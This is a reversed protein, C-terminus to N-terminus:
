TQSFLVTFSPLRSCLRVYKSHQNPVRRASVSPSYITGQSSCLALRPRCLTPLPLVPSCVQPRGVRAINESREAAFYGDIGTRGTPPHPSPEDPSCRPARLSVKGPTLTCITGAHGNSMLKLSSQSGEVRSALEHNLCINTIKTDADLTM